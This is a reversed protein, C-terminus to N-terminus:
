SESEEGHQSAHRRYAERRRTVYILGVVGLAAGVACVWIWWSADAAALSDRFFVLLVVLAVTWGITGLAVANVGDADVPRRTLAELEDAPTPSVSHLTDSHVVAGALTCSHVRAGTAPDSQGNEPTQDDNSHNSSDSGLSGTLKLRWLAWRFGCRM